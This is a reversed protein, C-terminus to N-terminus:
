LRADKATDDIPASMQVPGLSKFLTKQQAAQALLLAEIHGLSRDLSEAIRSLQDIQVQELSM